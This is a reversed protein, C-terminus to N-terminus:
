KKKAQLCSEVRGILLACRRSPKRTLFGCGRGQEYPPVTKFQGKTLDTINGTTRNKLYWHTGGEHRIVQPVLGSAPGGLLHYLAESAVYCHGTFKNAIEMARYRPTLLDCSLEAVIARSLTRISYNM